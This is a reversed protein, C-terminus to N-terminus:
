VLLLEFKTIRTIWVRNTQLFYTNAPPWSSLFGSLCISVYRDLKKCLFIVAVIFHPFKLDTFILEDMWSHLSDLSCESDCLQVKQHPWFMFGRGESGGQDLQYLIYVFDLHSCPVLGHSDHALIDVNNVICRYM